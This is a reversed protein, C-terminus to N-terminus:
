MGGLKTMTLDVQRCRCCFRFPGDDVYAGCSAACWPHFRFQGDDPQGATTVLTIGNRAAVERVGPAAATRESVFATPGRYPEELARRRMVEWAADLTERSLVHCEDVHAAVFARLGSRDALSM